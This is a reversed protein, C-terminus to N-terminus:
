WWVSALLRSLIQILIPGSTSSLNLLEELVQIFPKLVVSGSVPRVLTGRENIWAYPSARWGRRWVVAGCHIMQM